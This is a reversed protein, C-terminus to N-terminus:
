NAYLSKVLWSRFLDNPIGHTEQHHLVWKVSFNITGKEESPLIYPENERHKCDICKKRNRFFFLRKPQLQYKDKM